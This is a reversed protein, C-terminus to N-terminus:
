GQAGAVLGDKRQLLICRTEQQKFLFRLKCKGQEEKLFLERAMKTERM